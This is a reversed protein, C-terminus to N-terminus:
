IRWRHRPQFVFISVFSVWFSPLAQNRKGFLYIWPVSNSQQICVNWWSGSHLLPLITAKSQLSPLISDLPQFLVFTSFQAKQPRKETVEKILLFFIPHLKQFLLRFGRNVRFKYSNKKLRAKRIATKWNNM